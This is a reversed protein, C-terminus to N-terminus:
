KKQRNEGIKPSVNQTQRSFRHKKACVLVIISLFHGIKRWNKIEIEYCQDGASSTQLRSNLTLPGEVMAVMTNSVRPMTWTDIERIL